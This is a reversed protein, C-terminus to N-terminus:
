PGPYKCAPPGGNAGTGPPFAGFRASWLALKPAEGANMPATPDSEFGFSRRSRYRSYPTRARSKTAGLRGGRLVIAKVQDVPLRASTVFGPAFALSRSESTGSRAM